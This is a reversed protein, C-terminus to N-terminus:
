LLDRQLLASIQANVTAAGGSRIIIGATGVPHERAVEDSRTQASTQAVSEGGSIRAVILGAKGDESILDKAAAPRATGASAGGPSSGRPLTIVTETAIWRHLLGSTVVDNLPDFNM